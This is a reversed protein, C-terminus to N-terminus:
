TTKIERIITDCILQIEDYSIEHNNPVYFGNTHILEGNILKQSGYRDIWFPQKSISGAILPRHSIGLENLGQSIQKSKNHIIPYAFNSVIDHDQLSLCNIGGLRAQYLNFNQYRKKIIEDLKKLQGIGLFAQIETCRLNFGPYYFTYPANFNDISYKNRLYNRSKESIDRDWGHSRISKLLTALSEDDTCVMGGEVTSMHHGYFFSFTAIDGFCGTKKGYAVTGVSECSDELLIIDKQECIEKIKDYNNAFGLVNVAVIMSPNHKDVLEELHEINLGLNELNCDCLIPEFGLQIAPAVTTAWSVTPIVVKNNKLRDSLKLAYFAALNASSGSNVFISHKKGLWKSWKQEFQDNLDGKTLRPNTDLWESLKQLESTSITQQVLSIM